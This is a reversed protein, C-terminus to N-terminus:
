MGLMVKGIAEAAEDLEQPVMHVYIGYTTSVDKHGLLNSVVNIKVGQRFLTSCYTHRLSHPSIWEEGIEDAIRGVIDDLHTPKLRGHARTVTQFLPDTPAKHHLSFLHRKMIPDLAAPCPITRTSSATKTSQQIANAASSWSKCIRIRPQYDEIDLACMEGSRLGTNLMFLIPARYPSKEVAALFRKLVEPDMARAEVAKRANLPVKVDTAPNFVLKKQKVLRELSMSLTCLTARITAEALTAGLSNIWKQVEDQTLRSIPIDALPSAKIRVICGAVKAVTNAKHHPKYYTEFWQELWFAVSERSVVVAQGGLQKVRLQALKLSVEQQTKGTVGPRIRRGTRPDIGLSLRGIWNGTDKRFQITGEGDTRRPEAKKRPM